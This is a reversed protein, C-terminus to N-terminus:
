KMKFNQNIVVDKMRVEPLIKLSVIKGNRVSTEVITQQPAYLKFDADWEKPWAPFLIIKNGPTQMLMEQLGIMSCGGHDMDPFADFPYTVWFAPFRAKFRACNGLMEQASIIPTKAPYLFKNIAYKKAEDTLGLCAVGINSYKWCMYEKQILDNDAGYEWTNRAIDLDPLGIGYLHFPFMSYLQPFEHPNSIKKITDAIAIYKYGNKSKIPVVPLRSKFSILWEKDKSPLNIEISYLLGNVIAMLGSIADINNKTEVGYEVSNGPYIVLRKYKDLTKGTRNECEKQYYNDYFHLVGMITSLSNNLDKGFFRYNELMMFAFELSSTFHHTLHECSHLGNDSSCAAMIGYIDISEPFVVGEINFFHKAKERQLEARNRYFDLGVKLLDYDGSKVMPWYVLRQNQAMFMCDWWARDDPNPSAAGFANFDTLPNDFTLIGGNFLTPNKGTRNFALMYRFLQYNRGVQWATDNKNTETNIIIHSRDWFEKWWAITRAYDIKASNRNREELSKINKKWIEVLRDQEVRINVRLDLNNLPKVTKLKWSKYHTKMYVGSDTGCYALGDAIINGGIILNKLSNSIKNAIAELKQNKIKEPLDSKSSDLRYYFELGNEIKHSKFFWSEYAVNVNLPEESKLEAHIVPNFADVWLKLVVPKGNESEGSISIYSQLLNLNQKFKKKFPSPFISIRIRGLKVLKQNELRSDPHGIYFLIDDNEVWINLGLNGGGLPMSGTADVSQTDWDINFQNVYDSNIIKQGNVECCFLQTSAMIIFLKLILNKM